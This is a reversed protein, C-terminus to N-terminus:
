VDAGHRNFFQDRCVITIVEDASAMRQAFRKFCESLLEFQGHLADVLDNVPSVM